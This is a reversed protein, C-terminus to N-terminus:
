KSERTNEALSYGEGRLTRMLHNGLKRRMRAILVDLINSTSESSDGWVGELVHARSVIRGARQALINLIAWEKPTVAIEQGSRQLAESLCWV